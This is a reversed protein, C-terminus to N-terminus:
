ATGGPRRHREHSRGRAVRVERDVARKQTATSQKLKLRQRGVIDALQDTARQLIPIAPQTIAPRRDVLFRHPVQRFRALAIRTAGEVQQLDGGVQRFAVALLFHDLLRHDVLNQRAPHPAEVLATLDKVILYGRQVFRHATRRRIRREAARIRHDPCGGRM